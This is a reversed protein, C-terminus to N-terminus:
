DGCFNNQVYNELGELISKTGEKKYVEMLDDRTVTIGRKASLYGMLVTFIAEKAHKPTFEPEKDELICDTFYDDQIGMSIYYYKPYPEHEIKPKYWSNRNQGMNKDQSYVQVPNKKSHDELITGKTGYVELRNTVPSNVTFSVFTEAIVGTKYKLFILANDEAKESLNTCQKTIWSYASEVEDQLIWNMTTFKHVGMDMLCGGGAMIPHGKWFGPKNLGVMENVGEYARILFPKGILGEQVIDKIYQHVPLFRHNEAIMFKVGAKRTANIMQDCGELTTAMPKECLVHKGAEAAAIVMKEHLFHPVLVLVADIDSSFFKDLNTFHSIKLKRASKKALKEDIDYVSSIKIKPNATMSPSHFRDWVTGCGIVGYKVQIM